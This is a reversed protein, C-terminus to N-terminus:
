FKKKVKYREKEKEKEDKKEKKHYPSTPDWEIAGKSESTGMPSRLIMVIRRDQGGLSKYQM